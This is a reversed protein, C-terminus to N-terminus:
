FSVSTRIGVVVATSSTKEGGPTLVVQVDPQVIWWPTIQAKYTAEIVMESDFPNTANAIQQWRSFGSSFSSRAFAIGAVDDARGPLFGSFNFGCDGYWGIVDRNGPAGGGRIFATIKKGDHKYLDSEAVGYIGFNPSGPVNANSTQASWTQIDKTHIFAGLKFISALSKEDADPHPTFSIESFILAGDSDSIHFDTGSKNVDQAGSDGDFIGAMVHFHSNLDYGLRVAPAAVPYIPTNPLNAAVLSFAGFSSNIFLSASASAFFETDVAIMGVKISAHKDLFLQELWLENLRLTRYGSINSVNALDGISDETLSRGAIWFANAHFTAGNWSALKELDLTLPLNLNHDYIFRNGGHSGTAEGLIEGTYIPCIEVGNTELQSRVGGFEGLLHPRNCFTEAPENVLAALTSGAAFVSMLM